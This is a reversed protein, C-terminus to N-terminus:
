VDFKLYMYLFIWDSDKKPHHSSKKRDFFSCNTLNNGFAVELVCKLCLYRGFITHLTLASTLFFASLDGSCKQSLRVGILGKFSGWARQVFKASTFALNMGVGYGIAM